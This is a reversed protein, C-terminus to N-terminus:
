RGNLRANLVVYSLIIGACWSFLFTTISFDSGVGVNIILVMIGAFLLGFFVSKILIGKKANQYQTQMQEVTKSIKDIFFGIREKIEVGHEDGNAASSINQLNSIIDDYGNNGSIVIPLPGNSKLQEITKEFFSNAHKLKTSEETEEGKPVVICADKIQTLVLATIERSSKKSTEEWKDTFLSVIGDVAVREVNADRKLTFTDNIM